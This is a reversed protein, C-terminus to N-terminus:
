YATLVSPLVKQFDTAPRGLIKEGEQDFLGVYFSESHDVFRCRVNYRPANETNRGCSACFGGDDVRKQCPGTRGNRDVKQQCAKYFIPVPDGQKQTVVHMLRTFVTYYEPTEGVLNSAKKFEDATM